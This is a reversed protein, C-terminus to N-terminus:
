ASCKKCYNAGFEELYNILQGGCRLNRLPLLGGIKDLMGAVSLDEPHVVALTIGKNCSLQRKQEDRIQQERVTKEDYLDTPRYHQPGNFEFAIINPYYRDFELLGDTNINRLFGPKVNDMYDDSAVILSLFEKMLTEGRFKANELNNIARTMMVKFQEKIPHRLTITMPALQHKQKMILWGSQVLQGVAQRVSKLGIRLEQSLAFYRYEDTKNNKYGITLQILGHFLRATASLNTDLFLDTYIKASPEQLIRGKPKEIPYWGSSELAALATYVTPRSLGTLEALRTKSQRLQPKIYSNLLLAIWVLKASPLLEQSQLLTEPVLIYETTTMTDM